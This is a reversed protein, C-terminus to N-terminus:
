LRSPPATMNAYMDDIQRQYHDKLQPRKLKFTPTTLGNEASFPESDLCIAKPTEFGHLGNSSAANM